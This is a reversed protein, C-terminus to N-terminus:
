IDGLADKYQKDVLKRKEAKEVDFKKQYDINLKTRLSSSEEQGHRKIFEFMNKQVQDPNINALM